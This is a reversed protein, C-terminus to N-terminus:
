APNHRSMAAELGERAALRVADSGRELEDELAKEETGTFRGLVFAAADVGPPVPGIGLRLRPIDQTGSLEIISQMGKQGGSSGGPRLRLKGLPLAVDDFCVLIEGPLIRRYAAFAQLFRGSENMFTMPRGVVFGEGEATVGLGRFDKWRAQAGALREVLRFGANHRTRAYRPGPNGLGVVLKLM